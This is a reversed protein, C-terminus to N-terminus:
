PSAPQPTASAPNPGPVVQGTQPDVHTPLPKPAIQAVFTGTVASGSTLQARAKGNLGAAVTYHVTHTGTKVPTVRWVFSKSAGPALTGLAWTNVYATEGGGQPYAEETKVPFTPIPGPGTNVIWVPRKNVALHPYNSTYSLSNLTVAVNPITRPGANRVDLVLKTNSAIAQKTPFHARVVEVQYTAKPEHADQEAGGCGSALVALAVGGVALSVGPFLKGVRM